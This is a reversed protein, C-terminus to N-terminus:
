GTPLTLSPSLVQGAEPRAPPGALFMQPYRHTVEERMAKQRERDSGEGAVSGKVHEYVATAVQRYNVTIVVEM